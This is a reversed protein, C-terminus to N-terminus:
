DAADKTRPAGLAERVRAWTVDLAEPLIRTEGVVTLFNTDGFWRPLAHLHMHDAVGAGAAEGLNLGMNIGDPRYVTRLATEVRQAASMLDHAEHGPLEALSAVHRLPVILVHGSSYPFANLCIFGSPLRAVVHGAKDAAEASWGNAAGWDVAGILNCFVCGTDRGPWADLGAPVGKRGEVKAGSVYNYRWPTWLRDM